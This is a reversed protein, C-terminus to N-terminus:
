GFRHKQAFRRRHPRYDTIQSIEVRQVVGFAVVFFQHRQTLSLLADLAHQAIEVATHAAMAGINGVRLRFFVAYLNAFQQFFRKFVVQLAVSVALVFGCCLRAVAAFIKGHAILQHLTTGVREVQHRNHFVYNALHNVVFCAFILLRKQHSKHVAHNIITCRAVGSNM